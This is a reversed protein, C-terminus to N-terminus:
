LNNSSSLINSSASHIRDVDGEALSRKEPFIKEHCFRDFILSGVACGIADGQECGFAPLAMQHRVLDM